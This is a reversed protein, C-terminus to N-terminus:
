ESPRHWNLYSGWCDNEGNKNERLCRVLFPRKDCRFASNIYNIIRMKTQRENVQDLKDSTHFVLVKIHSKRETTKLM